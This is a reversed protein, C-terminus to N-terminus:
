LEEALRYELRRFIAWGVVLVVCAALGVIALNTWYWSLPADVLVRAPADVLGRVSGGTGGGSGAEGYIARQFALVISTMPNLRYISWLIPTEALNDQVFAIPYVIPTMWFWALLMLGLLHEVDRVYVNLVAAMLALGVLLILEVVLAAPLLLMAWGSVSFRFILVGIILIVFQFTFHSLNAGISALPLVERPFYVKTVLAANGLLSTVAGGLSGSWLNWALLGSLLYIPFFPIGAGLFKDFVVWFIVLYMAPNLMSWVFGLISNKYQVNLEKRILNALLERSAFIERLSETASTRIM